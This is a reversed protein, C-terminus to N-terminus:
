LADERDPKAYVHVQWSYAQRTWAGNSDVHPRSGVRFRSVKVIVGPARKTAAIAQAETASNARLTDLKALARRSNALVRNPKSM